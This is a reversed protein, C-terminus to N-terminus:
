YSIIQHSSNLRTSKRDGDREGFPRPFSDELQGSRVPRVPPRREDLSVATVVGCRNTVQTGEALEEVPPTLAEVEGGLAGQQGALQAHQSAVILGLAPHVDGASQADALTHQALRSPAFCLRKNVRGAFFM